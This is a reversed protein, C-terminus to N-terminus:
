EVEANVNYDVPNSLLSNQPIYAWQNKDVIKKFTPYNRDNLKSTTNRLFLFIATSETFLDRLLQDDLSELASNLKFKRLDDVGWFLFPGNISALTNSIFILALLLVCQLKMKLTCM